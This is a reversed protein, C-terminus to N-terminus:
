CVLKICQWKETFFPPKKAPVPETWTYRICAGPLDFHLDLVISDTFFPTEKLGFSAQPPALQFTQAPLVFPLFLLCCFIQKM